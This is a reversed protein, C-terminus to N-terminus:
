EKEVKITAKRQSEDIITVLYSGPPWRLDIDFRNVTQLAERELVQGSISVIEVEITQM